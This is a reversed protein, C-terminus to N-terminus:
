KISHLSPLKSDSAYINRYVQWAIEYSRYKQAITRIHNRQEVLDYQLLDDLKQIATKFGEENWTEVVVGAQNAAIIESDDSIGPPIVVPLGAAWYEGDKVPTCYLKSPTPIVPTIAFDAASLWSAVEQHPVTKLLLRNIPYHSKRCLEQVEQQTHPSLLLLFFNEKWHNYAAKLFAFTEDYFYTGGFKGVYVCVITDSQVGLEIRKAERLQMSFTFADLNVCAPKVQFLNTNVAGYTKTIFPKMGETNTVIYDAAYVMRREMSFLFKYAWTKNSWVGSEFMYLTHPEFSDIVLKSGPIFRSITYSYVGAPTCLSHFIKIHKRLAFIYLGLIQAVMLIYKRWGLPKYRYPKWVIRYALLSQNVSNIKEKTIRAYDKEETVLYLTGSDKIQQIIKLNPLTYSQILGEQFGWSTFFLIHGKNM